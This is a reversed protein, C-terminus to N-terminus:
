QKKRPVKRLPRLPANIGNPPPADAATEKFSDTVSRMAVKNKEYGSPTSWSIIQYFHKPTSVLAYLYNIKVKQVAGFIEFERAEYGNIQTPITMTLDSNEVRNPLDGRLINAYDDLTPNDGFDSKNEKIVMVGVEYLEFSAEIIIEKKESVLEEWLGPVTIQCSGDPSTLVRPANTEEIKDKIKDVLNCGLILPVLLAFPLLKKLPSKMSPIITRFLIKKLILQKHLAPMEARM